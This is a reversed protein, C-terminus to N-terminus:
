SGRYATLAWTGRAGRSTRVGLFAFVGAQAAGPARAPASCGEGSAGARGWGGSGGAQGVARGRRLIPGAPLRAARPTSSPTAAPFRQAGRHGHCYVRSIWGVFVVMEGGRGQGLSIFSNDTIKKGLQRKCKLPLKTTVIARALYTGASRM